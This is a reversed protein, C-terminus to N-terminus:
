VVKGYVPNVRKLAEWIRDVYDKAVRQKGTGTIADHHQVVGVVDLMAGKAELM